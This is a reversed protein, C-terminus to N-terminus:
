GLNGKGYILGTRGMDKHACNMMTKSLLTKLVPLRENHGM